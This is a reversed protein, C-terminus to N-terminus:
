RKRKKGQSRSKGTGRQSTRKQERGSGTVKRGVEIAGKVAETAIDTATGVVAGILQTATSPIGPSLRQSRAKKSTGKTSTSKKSPTRSPASKKSPSYPSSAKKAPM